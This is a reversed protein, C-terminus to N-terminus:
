QTKKLAGARWFPSLPSGPTVRSIAAPIGRTTPRHWTWPPRLSPTTRPSRPPIVYARTKGAGPVRVSRSLRGSESLLWGRAAMEKAVAKASLGRCVEAAWSEPLVFYTWGVGEEYRRFGARNIFTRHDLPDWAPDFRSDGHQELFLRVQQFATMVEAGGAGGREVLWDRFCRTAAAASTGPKWGTIGLRTALEGAAAILGFRALARKVQGEAGDPMNRRVFLDRSARAFEAHTERDATLRELFARGAYGHQEREAIRKL